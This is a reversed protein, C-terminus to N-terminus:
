GAAHDGTDFVRGVRQELEAHEEVAVGLVMANSYVEVLNRDIAGEHRLRERRELEITLHTDIGVVSSVLLVVGVAERVLETRINSLRRVLDRVIHHAALAVVPMLRLLVLIVLGLLQPAPDHRRFPPLVGDGVGEVHQLKDLVSVNLYTKERYKETTGCM